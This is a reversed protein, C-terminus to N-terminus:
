VFSEDGSTAIKAAVVSGLTMRRHAYMTVVAFAGLCGPTTGLFAALLYQGFLHRALREQWAGQSIVNLYEIVLMIIAVFGTILLAHSLVSLIIQM